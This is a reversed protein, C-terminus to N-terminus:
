GILKIYEDVSLIVIYASIPGQADDGVKREGGNGIGMQMEMELVVFQVVILPM